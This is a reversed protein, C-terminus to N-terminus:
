KKTTKKLLRWVPFLVFKLRFMGKKYPSQPSLKLISQMLLQDRLNISLGILYSIIENTLKGENLLNQAILLIARKKSAVRIKSNRWFEGTNSNPHKRNYYLVKDVVLGTLEQCLIRTYCEWEEAYALEENFRQDQFCRKDWLVTCSALPTKHCVVEDLFHNDTPTVTYSLSMSFDNYPLDGEFSQKQYVIFRSEQAKIIESITIELNLPHVVDDDDFFIIHDGQAMDLGFNRCGPLGKSYKTPRTYYTFRSDSSIFAKVASATDDTSGDDIILCEWQQFTQNQISRLSEIIFHARNFTAM